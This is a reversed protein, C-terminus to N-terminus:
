WEAGFDVVAAPAQLVDSAFTQDTVQAVNSM